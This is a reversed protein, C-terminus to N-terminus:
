EPLVVSLVDTFIYTLALSMVVAIISVVILKRPTVDSLAAGLAALFALTLWTFPIGGFTLASLYILTIVSVLLLKVVQPADVDEARPIGREGAGLLNRKKEANAASGVERVLSALRVALLVLLLYAISRPLGASGLPDFMPEPLAAAGVLLAIATALLLLLCLAESRREEILYRM